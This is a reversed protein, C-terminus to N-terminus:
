EQSRIIHPAIVLGVRHYQATIEVSNGASYDTHRIVNMPGSYMGDYAIGDLAEIRHM